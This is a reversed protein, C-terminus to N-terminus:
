PDVHGVRHYMEDTLEKKLIHMEDDTNEGKYAFMVVYDEEDVGVVVWIPVDAGNYGIVDGVSFSHPTSAAWVMGILLLVGVGILIKHSRQMVM